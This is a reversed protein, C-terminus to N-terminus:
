RLNMAGCVVSACGPPTHQPLHAQSERISALLRREEGYPDNVVRSERDFVMTQRATPDFAPWAHSPTSPNGTHAFAAWAASVVDALPALDSGTGV